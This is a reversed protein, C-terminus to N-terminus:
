TMVSFPMYSQKIGPNHFIYFSHNNELSANLSHINNLTPVSNPMWDESLFTAQFWSYRFHYSVYREIQKGVFGHIHMRWKQCYSMVVSGPVEVLSDSTCGCPLAETTKRASIFFYKGRSKLSQNGTQRYRHSNEIDLLGALNRRLEPFNSVVM